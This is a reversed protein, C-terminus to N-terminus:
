RPDWAERRRPAPRAPWRPRARACGCRSDRLCPVARGRVIADNLGLHGHECAILLPTSWGNVKAAVTGGAGRAVLHRCVDLKGQACAEYM